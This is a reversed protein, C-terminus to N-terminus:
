GGFMFRFFVAALLILAIGGGLLLGFTVVAFGIMRGLQVQLDDDSNLESM